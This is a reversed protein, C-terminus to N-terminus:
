SGTLAKVLERLVVERDIDDDLCRAENRVLVDRVADILKAEATRKEDYTLVAGGYMEVVGTIFNWMRESDLQVSVSGNPGPDGHQITVINEDAEPEAVILMSGGNGNIAIRRILQQQDLIAEVINEPATKVRAIRAM